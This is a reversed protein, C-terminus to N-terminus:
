SREVTVDLFHAACAIGPDYSRVARECRRTLEADDLDPRAQVVDRLDSEVAALNQTTPPVVTAGLVTGDAALEYRHYLLGPPAETAGHGVGARPEVPVAPVRPPVYREILHRAEVVAWLVEAARVLIGRFPNDCTPGLGAADAAARVEAPLLASNLSWRALPGTLYRRGDLEAYLSASGPVRRRHVHQEFDAVTFAGIRSSWLVGSDIAYGGSGRLALLEHGIALDPFEFGGVWALTSEADGRAQRLVARLRDLEARDPLRRFGGVRVNAPHPAPGALLEVIENGANRLRLGRQLLDPRTRALALADPLHLFDPAHLLHVHLAHSRIWEGCHLLRRLDALPGDVVAGCADEVARCATMRQAVPCSGRIRATLDPPETHARGRLLAEFDDAPEPLELRVDDVRSGRVAIHLTSRAETRVPRAGAPPRHLRRIM